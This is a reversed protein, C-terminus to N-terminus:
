KSPTTPLITTTSHDSSSGGKPPLVGTSFLIILIIVLLVTLAVVVLIITMKTNKWWMKRSVRRATKKFTASSAELDTTKNMLDDLREGRELVKEINQTMVGKVEDVQSQLKSLNDGGGSAEASSFKEMQTAMVPSFDRNLENETAFQARHSLSGSLFERKLETLFAYPQRRGFEPDSACMYIIGNDIMVHFMYNHSTYTTKADNRTPINPLMSRVVEDFNGTQNQHSCLPTDGRAIVSYFITM